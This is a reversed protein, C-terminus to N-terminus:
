IHILSLPQPAIMDWRQELRTIRVTADIIQPRYQLYGPMGTVNYVSVAILLFAAVLSGIWTPRLSINQWPLLWATINSMTARNEAVWRYTANGIAMFPKFKMLWGLPKFPWRQAFLFQMAHWHIHTTNNAEKIVWSNHRQMIDHIAPDSQATLIKVPPHLLMERLILCMKLCFGCDEDYYITINGISTERESNNKRQYRSIWVASPILLSLAMFGIFPFLGIHLMLAFGLHLSALLLLGAIRPWPWTIPKNSSVAFPLLVLIPALFEVVLVYITAITFFVPFQRAWIAVPTALQDLSVAHFAADFRPIWADGTKLLVTFVYLYLIQLVIAVTAMSFYLQAGDPKFRHTNHHTKLEHQLAADVSWRANLPLFLSWFSMVALLQDGSNLILANRNLLSALLIFSLWAMLRTRYGVLLGIAVLAALIFLTLQWWLQGSAAHISWHWPNALQLWFERPLVGSDTYFASLHQSRLALDWLIILALLIRFLAISRLDFSFANRLGQLREPKTLSFRSQAM